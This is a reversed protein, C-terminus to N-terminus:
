IDNHIIDALKEIVDHYMDGLIQGKLAIKIDDDSTIRLTVKANFETEVDKVNISFSNRAEHSFGLHKKLNWYRSDRKCMNCM